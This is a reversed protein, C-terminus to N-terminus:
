VGKRKPEPLEGDWMTRVRLRAPEDRNKLEEKLAEVRKNLREVEIEYERRAVARTRCSDVYAFALALCLLCLFTIIAEAM